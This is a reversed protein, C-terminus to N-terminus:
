YRREAPQGTRVRAVSVRLRMGDALEIFFGDPPDARTDTVRLPLATTQNMFLAHLAGTFYIVLGDLMTQDEIM